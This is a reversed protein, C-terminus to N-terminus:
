RQSETNIDSRLLREDLVRRVTIKFYKDSNHELEYLISEYLDEADYPRLKFWMFLQVYRYWFYFRRRCIVVVSPESNSACDRSM